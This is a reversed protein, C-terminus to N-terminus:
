TGGGGPLNQQTQGSLSEVIFYTVSYGTMIIVLGITATTLIKKARAINQENGGSTMWMAGGWIILILFLVGVISLVGQIARAIVLPVPDSGQIVGTGNVANNLGFPDNSPPTNQAFAATGIFFVIILIGLLLGSHVIKKTVM